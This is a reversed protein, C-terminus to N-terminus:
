HENQTGWTKTQPCSQTLGPKWWGEAELECCGHASLFGFEGPCPGGLDYSVLDDQDQM